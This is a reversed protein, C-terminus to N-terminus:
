TALTSPQLLWHGLARSLAGPAELPVLHGCRPLEVWHADPRARLMRQQVPRPCLRDRAGSVILLPQTSQRLISLGEGRRAAWDFQERAVRRATTRAMDRILRGHRRRQRAHHFYGPKVLQAVAAAGRHRWLQWLHRSRRRARPGGPEANSAILALREIRQPACALLRLAWLGGLSFGALAFREPLRRLVQPPWEGSPGMDQVKVCVVRARSGLARAQYAFLRSDCLTGAV